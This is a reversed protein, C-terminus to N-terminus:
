LKIRVNVREADGAAEMSYGAILAGEYIISLSSAAPVAKVYNDVSFMVPKGITVAGSAYVDIICDTIASVSTSSDTASKEMQAVGAAPMGDVLCWSATRPDNLSLLDGVACSATSLFTYRRPFGTGNTLEVIKVTQKAM